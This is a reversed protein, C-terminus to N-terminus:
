HVGLKTMGLALRPIGGHQRLAEAVPDRPQPEPPRSFRDEEYDGGRGDMALSFNM